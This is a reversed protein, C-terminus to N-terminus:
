FLTREKRTAPRMSIVAVAETGLPRFVVALVRRDLRGVAVFRGNKAPVVAANEFFGLTLWAFDLGHKLVNAQRKPEDFLIKVSYIYM